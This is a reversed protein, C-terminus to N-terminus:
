IDWNTVIIVSTTLNVYACNIKMTKQFQERSNQKREDNTTASRDSQRAEEEILKVKLNAFSPINDRSEIAICFNEYEVPLSNLLIISLLEDPINIGTEELQETNHTFDAIYQTITTSSKKEM